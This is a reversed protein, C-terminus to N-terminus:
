GVGLLGGAVFAAWLGIHARVEVAGWCFEDWRARFESRNGAVAITPVPYSWRDGATRQTGLLVTVPAGDKPRGGLWGDPRLLASRYGRPCEVRRGRLTGELLTLRGGRIDRVIRWRAAAAGASWALSALSTLAAILTAIRISDSRLVILLGLSTLALAFIGIARIPGSRVRM